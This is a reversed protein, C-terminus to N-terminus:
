FDYIYDKDLQYINNNFITSVLARNWKPILLRTGKEFTGEFRLSTYNTNWTTIGTFKGEISYEFTKFDVPHSFNIVFENELLTTSQVSFNIADELILSKKNEFRLYIDEIPSGIFVDSFLYNLYKIQLTIVLDFIKSKTLYERFNFAYTGKEASQFNLTAPLDIKYILNLNNYHEGALIGFTYPVRVRIVTFKFLNFFQLCSYFDDPTAFFFAIRITSIEPWCYVYRSLAESFIGFSKSKNMLGQTEEDLTTEQINYVMFPLLEKNRELFETARQIAYDSSSDFDAIFIKKNFEKDRYFVKEGIWFLVKRLVQKFIKPNKDFDQYYSISYSKM